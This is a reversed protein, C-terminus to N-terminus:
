PCGGTPPPPPPNNGGIYLDVEAVTNTGTHLTPLPFTCAIIDYLKGNFNAYSFYNAPNPNGVTFATATIPVSAFSYHGTSDTHTSLNTNVISVLANVVPANNTSTDKVVGTISVNTTGGNNNGGNNSSGNGGGGGCGAFALPILGLLMLCSFLRTHPSNWFVRNRM